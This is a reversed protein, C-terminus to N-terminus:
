RKIAPHVTSPSPPSAPRGGRKRKEAGRQMVRKRLAVLMAQVQSSRAELEAYQKSTIAALDRALLIHYQAEHSSAIAIALYRSFQAESAHGAGEAINAPISSVSRRLQSALGPYQRSMEGASLRYAALTFEHAKEWVSLRKFPYM